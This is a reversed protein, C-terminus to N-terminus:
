RVLQKPQDIMTMLAANRIIEVNANKSLKQYKYMTELDQRMM